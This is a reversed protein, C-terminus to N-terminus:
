TVRFLGMMGAEQHELIHCHFMWDGPNDAVLGVEVRENRGVIVTDSWIGHPVAQGNRTLVQFSHGHLHMPHDFYTDNVMEIIMNRGREVVILPTMRHNGGCIEGNLAWAMGLDALQTLNLLKGEFNGGAMAGGAGGELLVKHRTAQNLDPKPVPNAPLRIPADLPSDRLPREDTYALDTLTFSKNKFYDDVVPFRGGPANAMDLIIDARMSPGLIIRSDAPEHPDCPQGDVAIVIPVHDTFRLAFYRANAVNVLRLRVREGARVTQEASITGNITVTNGIRGEHSRDYYDDFDGALQGDSSMRWDDLMWLLDRDVDPPEQEDVILPGHLGRGIQESSQIHPHYWFTGADKLDFEYLFSTEPEVPAQTVFPVGDMANPLRLGHWHLSTATELRNTLNVRLQEGQRYNLMPGPVRGAFTWVESTPNGPGLIPAVGPHAVLELPEGASASVPLLLVAASALFNRRSPTFAGHFRLDQLLGNTVSKPDYNPM